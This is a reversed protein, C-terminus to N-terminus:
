QGEGSTILETLRDIAESCLEFRSFSSEQFNSGAPHIIGMNKTDPESRSNPDPSAVRILTSLFRLM